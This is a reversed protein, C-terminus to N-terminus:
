GRIDVYDATLIEEQKGNSHCTMAAILKRPMSHTLTHWPSQWHKPVIWTEWGQVPSALPVCDIVLSDVTESVV